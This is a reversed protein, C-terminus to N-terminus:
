NEKDSLPKDLSTIWYFRWFIRVADWECDKEAVFLSYDRVGGHAAFPEEHSNSYVIRWFRKIIENKM